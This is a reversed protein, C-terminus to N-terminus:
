AKLTKSAYTDVLIRIMKQYKFGKKKAYRKFLDISKKSLELTVKINDEKKILDDPKPFAPAAIWSSDNSNSKNKELTRVTRM